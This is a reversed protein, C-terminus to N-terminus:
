WRRGFGRGYFFRPGSYFYFSPGYFFPPYWSYPYYPYAYGGYYAPPPYMSPPPGARRQLRSEYDEQRVPQFAQPARDASIILPELTRFTLASEPYVVTPRGRTVLVGVTSAAAGAAAGMGAGFGGDAAAGIAAGVGTTAAIATADRGVSTGGSFQILQTRVPLQQGDVLSIENLEIGLRSTGKARGAKQAEAVRGAVTQGRRAVVFGNAILPQTLTGTFMDGPQNHDSSLPQNVRVTLWTGAPLILQPAPDSPPLSATTPAQEATQPEGARRWRGSQQQAPANSEQDQGTMVGGLAIALAAATLVTHEWRM